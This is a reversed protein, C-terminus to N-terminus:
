SQPGDAGALSRGWKREPNQLGAPSSFGWDWARIPGRPGRSWGGSNGRSGGDGGRWWKGEGEWLADSSGPADAREGAGISFHTSTVVCIVAKGAKSGVARQLPGGLPPPGARLFCHRLALALSAPIARLLGDPGRPKGSSGRSPPPTPPQPQPSVGPWRTSPALSTRTARLGSEGPSFEDSREM